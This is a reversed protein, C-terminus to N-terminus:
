PALKFVTGWGHSGYETTTGYLNGAKDLRLGARPFAGDVGGMFRYLVTLNGLTDLKFITGYDNGGNLTTGYLNGAKDRVLGAVPNVGDLGTFAHLITERKASTVRFVTGCDCNLAGGAVTTGYFGGAELLGVPGIGDGNLANFNHLITEHGNDLEFVTGVNETGGQSTTGYLKVNGGQTSQAIVGARPSAGDPIGTFSYLVTENGGSDVKFVTGLNSPGGYFTTGYFNGEADRVLGAFPTSGDNGGTFSHLVREKGATDIVFVTGCCAGGASTTGYLNGNADRILGALPIGGDAGGTFAYIVTEEGTPSLKFVVGCDPGGACGHNGGSSTTGYLNGRFDRILGAQPSAGDAGGTFSYLVTFTQAHTVGTILTFMFIVAISFHYWNALVGKPFCSRHALTMFGGNTNL